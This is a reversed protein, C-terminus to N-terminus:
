KAVRFPGRKKVVLSADYAMVILISLYKTLGFVSTGIVTRQLRAHSGILYCISVYLNFIAVCSLFSAM